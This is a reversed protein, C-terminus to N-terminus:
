ALGITNTAWGKGVCLKIAKRAQQKLHEFVVSYATQRHVSEFTCILPPASSKLYKPPPDNQHLQQNRKSGAYQASKITDTDVEVLYVGMTQVTVLTFNM